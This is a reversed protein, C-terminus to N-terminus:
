KRPEIRENLWKTADTLPAIRHAEGKWVRAMSVILFIFAAIRFLTGGAGSGTFLGVFSFLFRIALIALQLALGQAAHSRTRVEPRPVLLLEILAAVIGIYFPAYPLICALREPLGIGSITHQSPENSRSNWTSPENGAQNIMPPRYAEQNFVSPYSPPLADYTNFPRTPAESEARRLADREDPARFPAAVDSTPAADSVEETRRVFDPDLPNTDYKDKKEM